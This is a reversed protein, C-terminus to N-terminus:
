MSYLNTSKGPKIEPKRRVEVRVWQEQWSSKSVEKVNDDITVEELSRNKMYFHTSLLVEGKGKVKNAAENKLNTFEERASEKELNFLHIEYTEM